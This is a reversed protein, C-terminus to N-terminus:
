YIDRLKKGDFQRSKINDLNIYFRCSVQQWFGFTRDTAHLSIGLNLDVFSTQVIHARLDTRSYFHDTYYTDGLNLQSGFRPYLPFLNAGAYINQEIDIWKYLWRAAATFGAPTRWKDDVRARELNIVAGASIDLQHRGASHSFGILPNITIDDNVGEGDPAKRRKALHNLRFWGGAWWRTALRYQGFVTALFAERQRESQMQRWDLYASVSGRRGHNHVLFGRIRRDTYNLSDSRLYRPEEPLFTRPIAGIAATLNGRSFAYYIIPDVHHGRGDNNIPQYWQVGGSLQHRAGSRDIRIGVEPQLRTFLFTQDPRLADGGERNNFTINADVSATFEQATAAAFFLFALLFALAPRNM